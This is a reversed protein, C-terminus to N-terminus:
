LIYQHIQVIKYFISNEIITKHATKSLGRIIRKLEDLLHPQKIIYNSVYVLSEVDKTVKLKRKHIILLKQILYAPPSALRINMGNFEYTLQYQNFLNLYPLSEAYISTNGLRVTSFNQRTLGTVFELEFEDPSFFVVKNTLADSRLDYNIGRLAKVLSSKEKFQAPFPVYFDIDTTRINVEFDHYIFQYFYVAWSGVIIVKDLLEEDNFVSLIESLIEQNDKM